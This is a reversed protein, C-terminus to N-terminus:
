MDKRITELSIVRSMLVKVDSPQAKEFAAQIHDMIKPIDSDDKVFIYKIDKPEFKIRCYEFTLDNNKILISKDLIDKDSLYDEINEHKPVCRWESELHFEKQVTEGSQIETNGKTPKTHSILRRINEIFETKKLPSAISSEFHALKKFINEIYDGNAIYWVPNANNKEAWEKTLGIGYEGYSFVHDEIRALPIDCFCVMPFAVYKLGQSILWTIDERCYKPWFGGSLIKQLTEINNTFHFLTHSKPNL